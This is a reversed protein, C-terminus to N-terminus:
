TNISSLIKLTWGSRDLAEQSITWEIIKGVGWIDEKNSFDTSFIITGRIYPGPISDNKTRNILLKNVLVIISSRKGKITINRVSYEVLDGEKVKKM